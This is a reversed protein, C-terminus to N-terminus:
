GSEEEESDSEIEPNGSMDGAIGNENRTAYVIRMGSREFDWNSQWPQPLEFESYEPTRLVLGANPSTVADSGLRKLCQKLTRARSPEEVFRYPPDFFVFDFPVFEPCGRPRYSSRLADTQWCLVDEKVGLKAVNQQLLQFAKRDQEIFVVSKAGRSLAELGMTGTGAFVDAVRSGELASEIRQFLAEKVRDTIPRTVLGPNTLLTRRRFRGAIIRM